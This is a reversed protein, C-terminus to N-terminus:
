RDQGDGEEDTPYVSLSLAVGAAGALRLLDVPFTFSAWGPPSIAVGFDLLAWEVGPFSSLRQVAALNVDLFSTVDDLQKAFESQDSGSALLRVGSTENVDVNAKSHPFRREGKRWCSHVKFPVGALFADVDFDAGGARLICTM